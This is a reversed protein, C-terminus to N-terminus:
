DTTPAGQMQDGGCADWSPMPMFPNPHLVPPIAPINMNNMGMGMGMGIGMQAMMAMKLQQQQMTIPLMMLSMKMWNMIQVQAQLQKLYEIVEDLMSAKDTKNSNPVLKQLEKMRQNIKDRRKRESQNHIAAARNRKTSVSCREISKTKNAEDRAERQSSRHSISDHGDNNTTRTGQRGSSTTNEPSDVCLAMHSTASGSVSRDRCGSLEQSIAVRAVAGAQNGVLYGDCEKTAAGSCSGVRATCAGVRGMEMAQKMNSQEEMCNSCPVLADTTVENATATAATASRCDLWPVLENGCGGGVGVGVGVHQNFISELTGSTRPKDWTTPNGTNGAKLLKPPPGLGHMSLRGNEHDLMPIHLSIHNSNSLLPVRTTTPSNDELDWNPVCQNM